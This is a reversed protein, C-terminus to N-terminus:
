RARQRAEITYCGIHLRMIASPAKVYAYAEKLAAHAIPRDRLAQWDAVDYVWQHLTKALADKRHVIKSRERAGNGDHQITLAYPM